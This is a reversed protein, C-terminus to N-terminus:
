YLGPNHTCVPAHAHPWRNSISPLFNFHCLPNPFPLLVFFILQSRVHAYYQTHPGPRAPPPLLKATLSNPALANRHGLLKLHRVESLLQQGMSLVRTGPGATSYQVARVNVM